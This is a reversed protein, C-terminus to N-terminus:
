VQLILDLKQDDWNIVGGAKLMSMESVMLPMELLVLIALNFGKFSLLIKM